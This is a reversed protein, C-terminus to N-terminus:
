SARFPDDALRDVGPEEAAPSESMARQQRLFLESVFWYGCTIELWLLMERGLHAALTRWWWQRQCALYLVLYIIGFSSWVRFALKPRSVMLPMLLWGLFLALLFIGVTVPWIGLGVDIWAWFGLITLLALLQLRAGWSLGRVYLVLRRM